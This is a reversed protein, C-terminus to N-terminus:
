TKGYIKTDGQGYLKQPLGTQVMFNIKEDIAQILDNRYQNTVNTIRCANAIDEETAEPNRKIDEAMWTRLNTISLKDILNGLTEEM